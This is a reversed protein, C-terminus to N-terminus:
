SILGRHRAVMKEFEKMVDWIINQNISYERSTNYVEDALTDRGGYVKVLIDKMKDPMYSIAEHCAKWNQEDVPTKFASCALNRAYFRLCHRVYESYYPRSM